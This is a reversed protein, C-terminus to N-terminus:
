RNCPLCTNHLCSLKWSKFALKCTAPLAKQMIELMIMCILMKRGGKEAHDRVCHQNREAVTDWIASVTIGRLKGVHNNQCPNTFETPNQTHPVCAYKIINALILPTVSHLNIPSQQHQSRCITNGNICELQEESKTKYDSKTKGKPEPNWKEM